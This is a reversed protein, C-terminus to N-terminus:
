YKVLEYIRPFINSEISRAYFVLGRLRKEIVKDTYGSEKYSGLLNIIEKRKDNPVKAENNPSLIVGTAKKYDNKLFFQTKNNSLRHGYREIISKIEYLLSKPIPQKSSITIDDVYVSLKQGNDLLDNIQLFMDQHVLFSLLCSTSAGSILHNTSKIKKTDIYSFIEAKHTDDKYNCRTLDVTTMNTLIDAVDSSTELKNYFFQYVKERHTNPFFKSLDLTLMYDNDIHYLANDIYSSGKKSFHWNPTNIVSLKKHLLKNSKNAEPLLMEILRKPSSDRRYEIYPNFYQNFSGFELPNNSYNLLYKIDKKRRLKYLICNSYNM